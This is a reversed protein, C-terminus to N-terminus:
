MLVLTERSRCRDDGGIQRFARLVTGPDCCNPNIGTMSPAPNGACEDPLGSRLNERLADIVGVDTGQWLIARQIFAEPPLADLFIDARVLQGHEAHRSLSRLRPPRREAKACSCRIPTRSVRESRRPCTPSNPGIPTRTSSFACSSCGKSYCHM